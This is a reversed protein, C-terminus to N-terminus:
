GEKRQGTMHRSHSEIRTQIEAQQQPSLTIGRLAALHRAVQVGTEADTAEAMAIAAQTIADPKLDAVAQNSPPQGGRWSIAVNLGIGIVLVAAAARGLRRDWRQAALHRHVGALAEGRLKAPAGALPIHALQREILELAPDDM